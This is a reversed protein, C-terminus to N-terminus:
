YNCMKKTKNTQVNNFRKRAFNRNFEAENFSDNEEDASYGMTEMM